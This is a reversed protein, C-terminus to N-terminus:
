KSTRSKVFKSLSLRRVWNRRQTLCLCSIIFPSKLISVYVCMCSSFPNDDLLGLRDAPKWFGFQDRRAFISNPEFNLKGSPWELSKENLFNVPGTHPSSVKCRTLNTTTALHLDLLSFFLPIFNMEFTRKKKNKRFGNVGQTHWLFM